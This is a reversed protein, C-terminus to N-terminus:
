ERGATVALEMAKVANDELSLAADVDDVMQAYSTVANLVGGATMQAGEIFHALIGDQEEQTFHLQKSVFEVTAVPDKVKIGAQEEMRAVAMTVYDIDLFTSVADRAQSQVLELNKQQTERSFKVIGQDMRGGLHVRRLRETQVMGNLCQLETVVATLNFAGGGTESNSLDFGAFVIPRDPDPNEIHHREAYALWKEQPIPSRYGGLLIPALAQIGPAAFRVNMRNESLDCRVVHVNEGSAKVGELCAMLVDLNDVIGFSDSLVARLIGEGPNEPDIFSRLLFPKPYADPFTPGGDDDVGIFMGHLMGNVNADYLDPREVRLKRLYDTPIGFRTAIDGDAIRTPRLLVRDETVSLGKVALLATQSECAPATVVADVKCDQQVRLLEAIDKLTSNRSQLEPTSM